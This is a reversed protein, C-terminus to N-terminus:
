SGGGAPDQPVEDNDPLSSRAEADRAAQEVEDPTLVRGAAEMVREVTWGDGLWAALAVATPYSPVTEGVEIRTLSSQAIPKRGPALLIAESAERASLLTSPSGPIRGRKPAM